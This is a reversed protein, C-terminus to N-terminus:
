NRGIEIKVHAVGEQVRRERRRGLRVAIVRCLSWGREWFLRPWCKRSRRDAWVKRQSGTRTLQVGGDADRPSRRGTVSFDWAIQSLKDTEVYRSGVLYLLTDDPLDAVPIEAADSRISRPPRRNFRFTFENLYAQLHKASVGRQLDRVDEALVTGSPAFGVAAMHAEVLQLHHTRDLAAARQREAAVDCAALIRRAAM